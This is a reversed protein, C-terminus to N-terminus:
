EEKEATGKIMRQLHMGLSLASGRHRHFIWWAASTQSRIQELAKKIVEDPLGLIDKDAWAEQEGSLIDARIGEAQLVQEPTGKLKPLGAAANAVAAERNKREREAKRCTSCLGARARELRWQQETASGHIQITETHGCRFKV